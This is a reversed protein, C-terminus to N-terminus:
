NWSDHNTNGINNILKSTKLNGFSEHCDFLPTSEQSASDFTTRANALVVAYKRTMTERLIHTAGGGPVISLMIAGPALVAKTKLLAPAAGM